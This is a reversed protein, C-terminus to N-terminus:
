KIRIFGKMKDASRHRRCVEFGERSGEDNSNGEITSLVKGEVKEVIGTHGLGGGFDMIFIDGPEPKSAKYKADIHNWQSLVGGTVYMPNKIKAEACAQDMCWKAFAMCWSYGGGLGVSKLYKEIQKGKNSGKPEESVGLQSRAVSLFRQALSLKIGDVSPAPTQQIDAEFPPFVPFATSDNM